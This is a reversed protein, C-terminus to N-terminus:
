LELCRYEGISIPQNQAAFIPHRQAALNVILSAFKGYTLGMSEAGMTLSTNISIDPNPNVDLLYFVGDLLRIDMRAYDRCGVAKFAARVIEELKELQDKPLEVPLKPQTLQYARSTPDFNSEFTCLRDHIDKFPAYDIEAPPLVCLNGNGIVGVHFERGDIFEEVLAPQQMENNVFHIHHELEERSQVVSERTIGVSCHEYAAKVIAPFRAWEHKQNRRFVQWDPTPIRQERLITKVRPKNQGLVLTKSGTGTFTFGLRELTQAVQYESHLVGPIEECWNFVLSEDPNFEELARELEASQIELEQISYGIEILSDRLVAVCDRCEQIDHQSWSPNIDYLLLVPIKALTENFDM